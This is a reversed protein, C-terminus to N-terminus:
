SLNIRVRIKTRPRTVKLALGRILELVTWNLSWARVVEVNIFFRLKQRKTSIKTSKTHNSCQADFIVHELGECKPNRGTKWLVARRVM